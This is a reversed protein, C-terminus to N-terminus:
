AARSHRQVQRRQFLNALAELSRRIPSKREPTCLGYRYTGDSLKKETQVRLGGRAYIGQASLDIEVLEGAPLPNATVVGIGDAGIDLLKCNPQKGVNLTIGLDAVLVRHVARCDCLEAETQPQVEIVQGANAGTGAAVSLVTATQQHLKGRIEAFVTVEGGKKVDVPLDLSLVAAPSAISPANPPLPHLRQVKGAVLVRQDPLSSVAVFCPESATLM